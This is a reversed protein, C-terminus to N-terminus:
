TRWYPRFVEILAGWIADKILEIEPLENYPIMCPHTKLEISYESAYQWGDKIKLEWWLNHLEEHSRSIPDSLLREVAVEARLKEEETLDEWPPILDGNARNLARTAGHISSAIEHINVKVGLSPEEATRRSSVRKIDGM